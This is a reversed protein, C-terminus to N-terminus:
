RILLYTLMGLAIQLQDNSLPPNV